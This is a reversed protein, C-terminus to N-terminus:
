RERASLRSGPTRSRPGAARTVSTFLLPWLGDFAPAPGRYGRAVLRAHVHRVMNRPERLAEKTVQVLELGSRRVEAYRDIDILYQARDLQHHEGEYEILMREGRYWLDGHITQGSNLVLEPNVEPSPLGSFTLLARVESEMLSDSRTHLHQLLWAAEHAGARWPTDTVLLGLDDLSMHDRRVLWDGVKIADIVRALGCYAVFAAAPTVGVADLAPMRKTRHLFIGDIAIHHDRAVVFRLPWRPGYDLGTEQIRSIGTLRADSPMALRAAERRAGEDLACDVHRWVRPHMRVFRSGKLVWPPVGRERAQSVTFPRVLLEHPIDRM